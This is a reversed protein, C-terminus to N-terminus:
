RGRDRASAPMRRFRQVEAPDSDRLIGNADVDLYTVHSKFHSVIAPLDFDRPMKLIEAWYKRALLVPQGCRRQYRPVIFDGECRAYASMLQFIMKPLIRVQQGPVLLVAAVHDPLSGVGARITSVIGGTKWARNQVSKVGLHKVARRVDRAGNGTVLRIHDIRSRMLQETVNALSSGGRESPNLYEALDRCSADGSALVLAGVARQLEYVPEAGRVSGLAVASIRDSQLSLRAIMRARGRVYGREPTENLFILVRADQPVGRLGLEEDRLVQALWPSKVPSNEVFGYKEIMARANYVHKDDLPAGLANLSAVAVVLSTEPPILPEDALPAKFPLGCANDAEVLLIDSDVSDLLQKAREPPPGYVSGGGVADHLLVFQKESLAESITRADSDAPLTFPFLGLQEQALKTTTTALVRWGAEALEYGLGVMLSTKGGAGVFAVVDGPALDFAQEFRM